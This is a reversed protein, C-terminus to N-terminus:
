EGFKPLRSILLSISGSTDLMVFIDLGIAEAQRTEGLCRQTPDELDAPEDGPTDIEGLDDDGLMFAPNGTSPAPDNSELVEVPADNGCSAPLSLLGLAAVAAFAGSIPRCGMM